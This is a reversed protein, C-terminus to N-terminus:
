EPPLFLPGERYSESHLPPPTLAPGPLAGGRADGSRLPEEGVTVLNPQEQGPFSLLVQYAPAEASDLGSEPDQWRQLLVQM